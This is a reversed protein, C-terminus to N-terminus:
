KNYILEIANKNIHILELLLKILKYLFINIFIKYVHIIKKTFFFTNKLSIAM